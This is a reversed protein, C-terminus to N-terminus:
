LDRRGALHQARQWPLYSNAVDSFFIEVDPYAEASVARRGGHFHLRTPSPISIKAIARSHTALFEFDEVLISQSARLKDVIRVSKPVYSPAENKAFATGDGDVIEVGELHRVFDIWWNERRFEGDTVVPLGLAEQYNIIGAIAEDEITRLAAADIEGVAYRRRASHLGAPRLLSGVTDARITTSQSITM